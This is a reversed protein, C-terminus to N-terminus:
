KLYPMLLEGIKDTPITTDKCDSSFYPAIAKVAAKGHPSSKVWTLESKLSPNANPYDRTLEDGKEQSMLGKNIYCQAPALFGVLELRNDDM